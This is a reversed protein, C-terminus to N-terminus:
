AQIHNATEPVPQPRLSHLKALIAEKSATGIIKASVKGHFLYLLTPISQIAFRLGLDPNDDVNVKVVRATGNCRAAVKDVVPVLEVPRVQVVSNNDVLLVFKQGQDTAVARDTILIADHEKPEAISDHGYRDTRSRGFAPPEKSSLKDEACSTGLGHNALV